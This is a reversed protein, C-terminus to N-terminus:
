VELQRDVETVSKPKWVARKGTDTINGSCTEVLPELSQEATLAVPGCNLDTLDRPVEISQSEAPFEKNASQIPLDVDEFSLEMDVPTLDQLDTDFDFYKSLEENTMHNLLFSDSTEITQTTSTM